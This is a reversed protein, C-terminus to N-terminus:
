DFGLLIALTSPLRPQLQNAIELPRETPPEMMKFDGLSVIWLRDVGHRSVVNM